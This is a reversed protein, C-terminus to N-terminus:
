RKGSATGFEGPLRSPDDWLLVLGRGTGMEDENMSATIRLQSARDPLEAMGGGAVLDEVLRLFPPGPPESRHWIVIPIGTRLAIRIERAAGESSGPPPESLVMTVIREDRTIEEELRHGAGKSAVWDAAHPAEQLTHWRTRWALHRRRDRIRELSRVVVPHHRYLPVPGDAPDNEKSWREVPLNLLDVPLLFEIRLRGFGATADAEAAAVIDQVALELGDRPVLQDEGPVPWEDPSWQYWHRVAFHPAITAPEILILLAADWREAGPAPSLRYRARQFADTIGWQQALRDLLRRLPEARDGPLQDAVLWVFLMCPPVRQEGGNFGALHAFVHWVNRCHPPPAGFGFRVTRRYLDHLNALDVSELHNRMQLWDADSFYNDLGNWEDRLRRVRDVAPRDLRTALEEVLVDLCHAATCDRVLFTLHTMGHDSPEVRLPDPSRRTVAAILDTRQAALAFRGSEHLVAAIGAQIESRAVHPEANGSTGATM